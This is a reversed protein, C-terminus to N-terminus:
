SRARPSSSAAGACPTSCRSGATTSARCRPRAAPLQHEHPRLARADPRDQLRRGRRARVEARGLQGHRRAPRARAASGHAALPRRADGELRRRALPRLPLLRQRPLHRPAWDVGQDAPPGDLGPGNETELLRLMDDPSGVHYVTGYAKSRGRRVAQGRRPEDDLLGPRPFLCLWHGGSTSTRGGRRAPRLLGDDSLRRCEDFMAKLQPLRVRAPTEPTGDGHFEALHVIDVGM